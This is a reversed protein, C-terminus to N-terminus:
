PAPAQAPPPQLPRAPRVAAQGTQGASRVEVLTSHLRAGRSPLTPAASTLVNASGATDCGAADFVPEVGALLCVVGEMVDATVRCACRVMGQESTVAVEDGDRLGRVDADGPHIWLARDDRDRFWPIEALQTHTRLRSKPTILRLPLGEAAKEFRAAPIAPLGAAACAAGSLEVKGSPTKLPAGAPDAAFPALGVREQDPSWYIGSRRFEDVDPIESDALCASLWAGSDRGETYADGCGMAGALDAFIDYDDRALGPPATVRHSYLLYGASTFVADSRELWHTAPLVVDCYRATTTLFLDHCVSFELAQMARISTAVDAGQVVYNGGTDYAAGIDAPYGGSRGRLVADAWDNAHIGSTAPAPPVPIRGVRPEPLGGWTRGGSSGGQRGLDGTVTQLAIALRVAEEGGVTRQISLGPVLAVPRRRSWERALAVIRAAPLGCIGAAWEPTTPEGEGRSGDDALGLVHCRLAEWGSAHAAVFDDDVAGESIFVHLLALMLASDAGPRVPLWETGLLKATETRRPDIVIVPVGRRKVERVRARWECGMICDVLNAGWLVVMGSRRLTAPDIGAHHTGLVVPQTHRAAASSYTDIQRVHGGILNLFRATLDETDHVVGRCSGSGGLALVAGDGHRERVAGLGDAVLRVAEDWGAERFSGSGRAGTRVLPMTLRGPAQQQRWAQFGRVCGKLYRGAAPNGAIRTVRGGAVTALLPCGGGCDRNCAVPLTTATEDLSNTTM